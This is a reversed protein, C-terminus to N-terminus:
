ASGTGPSRTSSWGPPTPEALPDRSVDGITVRGAAVDNIGVQAGGQAIKFKVKDPHLKVYKQALLSVLPYSATAGSITITTLRPAAAPAAVGLVGAVALAVSLRRIRKM